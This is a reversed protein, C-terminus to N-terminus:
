IAPRATRAVARRHRPRPTPTLSPGAPEVAPSAPQALLLVNRLNAALGALKMDEIMRVLLPSMTQEKTM